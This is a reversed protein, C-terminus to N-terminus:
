QYTGMLSDDAYCLTVLRDVSVEVFTQKGIILDDAIKCIAQLDAYIAKYAGTRHYGVVLDVILGFHGRRTVEDWVFGNVMVSWRPETSTPIKEKEYSCLPFCYGDVASGNVLKDYTDEMFSVAAQQELSRKWAFKVCSLSMNRYVGKMAFKDFMRQEWSGFNSEFYNAIMAWRIEKFRSVLSKFVKNRNMRNRRFMTIFWVEVLKTIQSREWSSCEPNLWKDLAVMLGRGSKTNGKNQGMTTEVGINDVPNTMKNLYDGIGNDHNIV